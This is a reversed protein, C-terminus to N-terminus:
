FKPLNLKQINKEKKTNKGVDERSTQCVNAIENTTRRLYIQKM